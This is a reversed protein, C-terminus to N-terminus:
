WRERVTLGALPVSRYRVLYFDSGDHEIRTRVWKPNGEFDPVKAELTKGCHYTNSNGYEDFYGYRGDPFPILVFEGHTPKGLYSIEDHLEAFTDLISELFDRLFLEEPDDTKPRVQSGLGDDHSFGTESILTQAERDITRLQNLITTLTM